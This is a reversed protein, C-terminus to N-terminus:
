TVENHDDKTIAEWFKEMAYEVDAVTATPALNLQIIAGTVSDTEGRTIHMEPAFGWKHPHPHNPYKSWDYVYTDIYYRKRGSDDMICKQLLFDANNHPSEYRNYGAELWDEPTM